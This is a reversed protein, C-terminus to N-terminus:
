KYASLDFGLSKAIDCLKIHLRKLTTPQRNMQMDEMVTAFFKEYVIDYRQDGPESSDSYNFIPMEDPGQIKPQIKTM